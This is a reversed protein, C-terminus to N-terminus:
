MENEPSEENIVRSARNWKQWRATKAETARVLGMVGNRDTAQADPNDKTRKSVKQKKQPAAKVSSGAPPEWQTKGLKENVYYVKGTSKSIKIEWGEPLQRQLAEKGQIGNVTVQSGEAKRSGASAAPAAPASAKPAPGSPPATTMAAYGSYITVTGGSKINKSSALGEVGRKRKREQEPGASPATGAPPPGSPPPGIPPPGIADPRLQSSLVAALEMASDSGPRGPGAADPLPLMSPRIGPTPMPGGPGAPGDALPPFGPPLGLSPPMGPPLDLPPPFGDPGLPGMMPGQMMPAIGSGPPGAPGQMALGGDVFEPPPLGPPPFGPPPGMAMDPPPGPPPAKFRVESLFGKLGLPGSLPGMLPESPPGDMGLPGPLPGLLPEPPPGDMPGLFDPMLPDPPPILMSDGSGDPLDDLALPGDPPVMQL